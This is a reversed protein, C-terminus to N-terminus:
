NKENICIMKIILHIIENKVLFLILRFFEKFYTKNGDFWFKDQETSPIKQFSICPVSTLTIHFHLYCLNCDM